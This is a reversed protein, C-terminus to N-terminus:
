QSGQAPGACPLTRILALARQATQSKYIWCLVAKYQNITQKGVPKTPEPPGSGNSHNSLYDDYKVMVSDYNSGVFNNGNAHTADHTGGRKKQGGFSQYFMFRYVKYQSLVM